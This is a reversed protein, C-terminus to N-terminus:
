SELIELVARRGLKTSAATLHTRLAQVTRGQKGIVNGLDQKAVCLELLLSSERAREYLTVAEPYSVLGRVVFAMLEALSSLTSEGM